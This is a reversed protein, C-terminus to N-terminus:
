LFRCPTKFRTMLVKDTRKYSKYFTVKEPAPLNTVSSSCITVSFYMHLLNFKCVRKSSIDVIMAQSYLDYFSHGIFFILM